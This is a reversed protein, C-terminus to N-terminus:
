WDLVERRLAHFFPVPSKGGPVVLSGAGRRALGERLDAAVLRALATAAAQADPFRQETLSM